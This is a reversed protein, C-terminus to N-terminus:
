GQVVVNKLPRLFSFVFPLYPLHSFRHIL